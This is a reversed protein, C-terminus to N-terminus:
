LFVAGEFEFFGLGPVVFSGGWVWLNERGACAGEPVHCKLAVTGADEGFVFGILGM